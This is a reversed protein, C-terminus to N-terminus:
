PFWRSAADRVLDESYVCSLVNLAAQVVAVVDPDDQGSDFEPWERSFEYGHSKVSIKM